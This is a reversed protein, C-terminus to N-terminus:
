QPSPNAQERVAKMYDRVYKQYMPPVEDRDIEGGTDAHRGVRRSYPTALQQNRSATEITVDGTLEQSRKGIIEALKGMARLQEAEKLSKDGDQRGIGSHNDSANDNPSQGPDKAQSSQAQTGNTGRDHNASDADEGQSGNQPTKSQADHNNGNAKGASKQDDSNQGQSSPQSASRMKAVLQSLADKMKDLLGSSPQGGTRSQENGSGQQSQASNEAPSGSQEAGHAANAASEAGVGQPNQTNADEQDRGTEGSGSKGPTPERAGAAHSRGSELGMDASKRELGPSPTGGLFNEFGAFVAPVHISILGPRLDLSAADFYRVAFLGAALSASAVAWVCARRGTFPLASETNLGPLLEEARAVQLLALTSERKQPKAILFWATSLTDRLGLRHDILQAVRYETLKRGRVRWIVFSAAAAAVLAMWRADLLQTGLLLVLAVGAFMGTLALAIQEVIQQVLTRRTAARVVANLKQRSEESRALQKGGSLIIGRM